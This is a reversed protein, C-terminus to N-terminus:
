LVVADRSVNTVDIPTDSGPESGRVVVEVFLDELKRRRLDLRRIPWDHGAIRRSLEERIDQNDRTQIEYLALGDELSQSRVDSVGGTARLVDAVQAVPGRVEAVITARDNAIDAMKCALGVRGANIIIVRECVAEVQSLIHTSLLITHTQGLERILAMTERSQIPDLGSTPEDLLLIEPDHIMADALGVRQKYGRSLTGILRRRVSRIRCRDLCYDVRKQRDRRPVNKLTARFTLYEDVRMEGYLPVSEPLYGIHQRVDMSQTMVDFGAVSAIGSSAPLYTTLIRLTTTKGAGNPGLFGVVEGKDVAFSVHDVAVVPGYTKTIDNVQIMM